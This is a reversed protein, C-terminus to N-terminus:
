KTKRERIAEEVEVFSPKVNAPIVRRGFEVSIQPAAGGVFAVLSVKLVNMYEKDENAVFELNKAVPGVFGYCGLVGLFTGVLAAGISHGLVEPPESIKGMTIVVGLVAAVIGLGPLGDAVTNISKSPILSEEHHAELETDLLSELEHPAISTTMVTRLTDAVLDVAHHNKLFKPYNSFIKSEGPNDVDAEISVLGEKRIKSFIESMLILVEIYDAKSYAKGALIKGIDGIVAKIVKMPSAIIFSGTAAGGIILLEVPQFLVHLNGHELLYGGIVSIFVIAAGIIAFM